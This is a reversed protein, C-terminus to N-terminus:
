VNRTAIAPSIRSARRAPPFAAGVAVLFLLLACAGLITPSLKAGDYFKLLGINLLAALGAGVAIGLITTIGTETLFYHLIDTTTAGLARRVGIQRTRETVSFSSLGAISASAVFLLLIVLLGMLAFIMRQPGFYAERVTTIPHAPTQSLEYRSQLHDNIRQAVENTKGSETRVLFQAGWTYNHNGSGPAFVMYDEAQRQAWEPMHLHRIVGIVRGIDGDRDEFLKGVLPGEGFLRRGLARTIVADCMVVERMKGDALRERKGELDYWYRTNKQAEERTFWRGEDIVAGVTDPFFEDAVWLGTSVYDGSSNPLKVQYFPGGSWLWRGSATISQIGPITRLEYLNEQFWLERQMTDRFKTKPVSLVGAVLREEDLGTRESMKERAQVILTVCNAVIALTMAVQGAVLGFRLKNRSLARWIPGYEM